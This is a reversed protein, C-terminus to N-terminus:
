NILKLGSFHFVIPAFGVFHVHLFAVLWTKYIFIVFNTHVLYFNNWSFVFFLGNIFCELSNSISRGCFSRSSDLIWLSQHSSILLFHYFNESILTPALVLNDILHLSYKPIIHQNVYPHQIILSTRNTSVFIIHYHQNAHSSKKSKSSYSSISM